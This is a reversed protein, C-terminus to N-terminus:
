KIKTKLKWQGITKTNRWSDKYWWVNKIENKDHNNYVRLFFYEEEPANKAIWENWYSITYGVKM